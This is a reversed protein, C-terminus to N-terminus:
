LELQDKLKELTKEGIGSIKTLDEISKFNGNQERYSIIQEARKEGIGSLKQLDQVSATNINVKEESSSTASSSSATPSDVSSGTSSSTIAPVKEGKHPVYIQDQDKLLLARNINKLNAQKIIGGAASLLDNLRAGNKLTYVGPHKVAGSIDCTVTDQQSQQMSRSHATSSKESSSTQSEYKQDVQETVLDSNDVRSETKNQFYMVGGICLLIAVGIYLKKEILFEKLKKFDM